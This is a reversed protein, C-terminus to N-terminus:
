GSRVLVRDNRGKEPRGAQTDCGKPVSNVHSNLQDQNFVALRLPSEVIVGDFDTPPANSGSSGCYRRGSAALRAANLQGAVM